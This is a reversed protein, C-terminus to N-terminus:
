AIQEAEHSAQVSLFILCNQSPFASSFDLSTIPKKLADVVM